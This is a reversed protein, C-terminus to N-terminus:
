KVSLIWKVLIKIDGSPVSQVPPMFIEGWTGASGKQLKETLRAEAGSDGKYKAAIDRYSPGIVKRDIAHCALCGSKRALDESAFAGDAAAILVTLIVLMRTPLNAPMNGQEM